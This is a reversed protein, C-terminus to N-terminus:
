DMQDEFVSKFLLFSLVAPGLCLNLGWVKRNRFRLAIWETSVNTGSYELIIHSTVFNMFLAVNVYLIQMFSELRLLFRAKHNRM